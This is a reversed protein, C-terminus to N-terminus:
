TVTRLVTQLKGDPGLPITVSDMVVPVGDFGSRDRTLVVVDNVLHAPNVLASLAVQQTLGLAQRLAADVAAQLQLQTTATTLNLPNIVDGYASPIWSPTGYNYGIFTPSMPNDDWAEARLPTTVGTGSSTGIIHNYVARNTHKTELGAMMSAAPDDAYTWCPVTLTPDATLALVCIGAFDFWLDYGAGTALAQAETWPDDGPQMTVLPTVTGATSVFRFFAPDDLAPVQTTIIAMIATGLDTGAAISYFDRFKNRSVTNSRDALTLTIALDTDDKVDRDTIAMAGLQFTETTGDAFTIGRYLHVENGYPKLLSAPVISGDPDTLAVQGQRRVANAVDESVSGGIINLTQILQGGIGSWIEARTAITNDQSMAALFKPTAAQM